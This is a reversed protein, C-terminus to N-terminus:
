VYYSPSILMDSLVELEDQTFRKQDEHWTDQHTRKFDSFAKKVTTSIPPPDSFYGSLFVMAEPMWNPVDYPFAELLSSLGLVGAHRRVIAEAYGENVPENKPGRRKRAPLPTSKLLEKFHSILRQTADRQSCRVIGSLTSAALQRVEIQPDLLMSSVANMVKLMMELDMSFLNTYFFVQVVPLVNNRIHWSTSEKLINCFLDVMTPVINAPYAFRALRFLTFTALQQLDQDDPIDQMQFLEPVLPLVVGYTAQVRFSSLAQYVWSLVSKSANTYDSAGQIEPHREVRWKELNQALSTIHRASEEDLSEVLASPESREAKQVSLFEQVNKYSPHPKLQFCENIVHGLIERVQKYPHNIHGLCNETLAPTLLSVRWSLSVLVARTFFLNKSESFAAASDKDLPTNFILSVLPLIRRPDRHACCYKVFREWYVLSDPTCMQFVKKLVPTLWAWMRDLASKKWHKSGRILGGVLEAATRQSNKDDVTSCHKVILPEVVDLFKDEWLGFISKYFRAHDISFADSREGRVPEQAMIEVLKEWTSAQSFFQELHDYAPRSEADVDPMAFSEARPLYVKISKPWALWGTEISDDLYCSEPQAYNIETVSAKLYEWTFNDPFKEPLTVRRKLPNIAKRIILSHPDGQAFTRIKINVMITSLSSLAIRRVTSMESILSKAEFRAIDLSIPFEPRMFLEIFSMVMTQYRWHLSEDKALETLALILDQYAKISNLRRNKTMLAVRNVTEVDYTLGHVDIFNQASSLLEQNTHVTFTSNTMNVIYELFCKRVLAQVSPKDAHHATCLRQVYDPVFRWNRLCPPTLSKASLLYLAGKMREYDSNSSELSKLLVPIVLYKAGQYCHVAKLLAQQSKKRVDTYQSLSLETLDLMLVDHLETKVRGSSNFKLRTYHHATARRCCMLRPYMKKDGPLRYLAKLFEYGKSNADFTKSDIGHDSLFIRAAKVLIKINEVDDERKTLFFGMLEHLLQGTDARIKRIKETRPDNYDTLCYGVEIRKLPLITDMDDGFNAKSAPSDGDDEVLTIMGGLFAKILTIVKCFEISLQKGELISNSMLDRAKAISALHFVEILEIGFNIEDQSPIHWDIKESGSEELEGWHLHSEAMFAEDNWKASNHSRPNVTYITLMTQLASGLVKAAMKYGRRDQCKEVMLKALSIIETRYETIDSSDILRSLLGQYYHLSDDRHMHSYTLSPISSAGHELEARILRDLIPFAKTMSCKRNASAWCSIFEGMAKSANILPASELIEIVLKTTMDYLKPSLQGFLLDFCYTSDGVAITATVSTEVSDKKTGQDVDPYNEFLLIARRLLKMVWEEFDATTAKRNADELEIDVVENSDLMDEEMGGWQFGMGGMDTLDQLPVTSIMSSIFMLTFWTKAPDNLDIGPLTLHLLPSLHKGGQPYHNRNLMPIAISGMASIVSTTRHTETLSELSPYARELIGPIILKPAIWALYRLTVTNQAVARQDKSFMMLYTVGKITEVFKNNIETTLRLEQPVKCKESGQDRIRELYTKALYHIFLALVYSWQGSNSPHFFSETAQILDSLHALISSEPNEEESVPDITNVIFMAVSYMRMENRSISKHATGGESDVHNTRQGKGVPLNLASLGAAFITRVQAETFMDKTGLNDKAVRAFLSLFNRDFESSRVVMSWLRFMAPMWERPDMGSEIDTPLFTSLYSQARLLEPLNSTSMKPIFEELIEAAAGSPFFRRAAAILRVVKASRKNILRYCYGSTLEVMATDVGPAFSIEWLMKAFSARTELPLAYKLDLYKDLRRGWEVLGPAWDESKLCLGFHYIINHLMESAEQSMDHGYPLLNHLATSLDGWQQNIHDM